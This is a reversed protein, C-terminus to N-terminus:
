KGRMKIIMSWLQPTILNSTLDGTIIKRSFAQMLTYSRQGTTEAKVLKRTWAKTSDAAGTLNRKRCVSEQALGVYLSKVDNELYNLFSLGVEYQGMMDSHSANGCRVLFLLALPEAPSPVPAKEEEIPSTRIVESSSPQYNCALLVVNFQASTVLLIFSLRTRVWYIRM